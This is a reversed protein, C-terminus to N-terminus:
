TWIGLFLGFPLYMWKNKLLRKISWTAPPPAPQEKEEEKDEPKPEPAKKPEEEPEQPEPEVVEPMEIGKALTLHIQQTLEFLEEKSLDKFNGPILNLAEAVVKDQCDPVHRRFHYAFIGWRKSYIENAEMGVPKREEVGGDAIGTSVTQRNKSPFIHACVSQFCAGWSADLARGRRENQEDDVLNFLHGFNGKYAAKYQPDAPWLHHALEHFGIGRWIKLAREKNRVKELTQPNMVVPIPKKLQDTGYTFAIHRGAVMQINVPRRAYFALDSALKGTERELEELTLGSAFKAM